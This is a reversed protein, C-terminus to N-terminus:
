KKVAKKKPRGPKAATPEPETLVATSEVDHTIAPPENEVAGADNIESTLEAIATSLIARKIWNVAFRFM